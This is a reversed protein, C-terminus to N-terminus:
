EWIFTRSLLGCLSKGMQRKNTNAMTQSIILHAASVAAIIHLFIHGVNVSMFFYVKDANAAAGHVAKGLYEAGPGTGEMLMEHAASVEKELALLDPLSICGWINSIDVNIM